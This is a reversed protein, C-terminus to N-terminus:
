RPGATRSVTKALMNLSCCQQKPTTYPPTKSRQGACCPTRNRAAADQDLANRSLMVAPKLGFGTIQVKQTTYTTTGPPKYYPWWNISVVTLQHHCLNLVLHTSQVPHRPPGPVYLSQPLSLLTGEYPNCAPENLFLMMLFVFRDKRFTFLRLNMATHEVTAQAACTNSTKVIAM